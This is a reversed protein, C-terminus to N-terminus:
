NGQSGGQNSGTVSGSGSSSSSSSSGGAGGGSGQAKANDDDDELRRNTIKNEITKGQVFVKCNSPEIYNCNQEDDEQIDDIYGKVHQEFDQYGDVCKWKKTDGSPYYPMKILSWDLVTQYQHIGFNCELVETGDTKWNTPDM